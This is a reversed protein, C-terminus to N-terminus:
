YSTCETWEIDVFLVATNGATWAQDTKIRIGEGAALIIPYQPLALGGMKPEIMPYNGLTTVTGPHTFVLSTLPQTDETGTGGSIAGTNGIRYQANQQTARTQTLMQGKFSVAAAAGTTDLVTYSRTFYTSTVFASSTAVGAIGRFGVSIGLIIALVPSTSPNQFAYLIGNAALGSLTGSNLTARYYGGGAAESTRVSALVAAGTPDVELLGDVGEGTRIIAM